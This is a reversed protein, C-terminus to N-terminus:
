FSLVKLAPVKDATDELALVVQANEALSDFAVGCITAKLERKLLLLAYM